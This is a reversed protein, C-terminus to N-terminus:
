FFYTAENLETLYRNMLSTLSETKIFYKRIQRGKTTNAMMLLVKFTEGTVAYYKKLAGGRNDKKGEKFLPYFKSKYFKVLEHNKDIIKYDENFVFSTLTQGFKSMLAKDKESHGFWEVLMEKSVYLWGSNFSPEWFIKAWKEEEETFGALRALELFTLENQHELAQQVLEM